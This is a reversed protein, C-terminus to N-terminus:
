ITSGRTEWYWSTKRMTNRSSIMSKTHNTCWTVPDGLTADRWVGPNTKSVKSSDVLDVLWCIGGVEVKRTDLLYRKAGLLRQDSSWPTGMLSSTHWLQDLGQHNHKWNLSRVQCHLIVPTQQTVKGGLVGSQQWNETVLFFHNHWLVRDHHRKGWGSPFRRNRIMSNCDHNIM